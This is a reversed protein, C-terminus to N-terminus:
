LDDPVDRRGYKGSFNFQVEGVRGLLPFGGIGCLPPSKTAGIRGFFERKLFREGIEKAFTGLDCGGGDGWDAVINQDVGQNLLDEKGALNAGVPRM